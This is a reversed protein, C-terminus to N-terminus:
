VGGIKSLVTDYFRKRREQRQQDSIYTPLKIEQDEISVNPNLVNGFLTSKHKDILANYDSKNYLKSTNQVKRQEYEIAKMYDRQAYKEFYEQVTVDEPVEKRQQEYIRDLM